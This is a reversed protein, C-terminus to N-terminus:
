PTDCCVRRYVSTKATGYSYMDIVMRVQRQPAMVTYAMVLRVQRQPAPDDVHAHYDYSPLFIVVCRLFPPIITVIGSSVIDGLRFSPMYTLCSM